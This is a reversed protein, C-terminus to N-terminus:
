VSVKVNLREGLRNFTEVWKKAGTDGQAAREVSSHYQEKGLAFYVNQAQWINYDLNLPVFVEFLSLLSNMKDNQEPSRELEEMLMNIKKSVEFAVTVTDFQLGWRKVESVVRGIEETDPPTAELADAFDSYNVFETINALVRPLPIGMQRIMGLIPDHNLKIQRLSDSIQELTSQLMENVLKRQEDRFLHWLSYNNSYHQEIQAIASSIDNRSFLERVEADIAEFDTGNDMDDVGCALNYDGFHIVTYHINKKERTIVSQIAAKGTAIINKGIEEKKQGSSEITYCYIQDSDSYSEFVSSMAYHAGVRYLDLTSPTIFNDYVYVGTGYEPINSPAHELLSRFTDTLNIGCTDHALQIARAAYAIIQTTEIGSVEDFFWGCSTYMLMAHRQMELLKIIQQQQEETPHEIKKQEGLVEEIAGERNVLIKWYEDRCRWPEDTYEKMAEEYVHELNDRLWDLAGRLPARWKQHWGQNMGSNCGCNSRWREIGHACSWSSNEHIEVECTPPFKELFEGYVCLQANEEKEIQYLCYALAMDGFRHHHGYSEGDTAIHVLQPTQNDVFASELRDAFYAGNDLLGGFAIDHSIPGDYFFLAISKGSPLACRYPMKPDLGKKATDIWEGKKIQRVRKAQNPALITFRIGYEALIDLTELDVATEACWMGEPVRGFRHEFDNIGWRVQTHKDRTNGLPLIMHSYNQAIAAGHGSFRELSIRDAELIAEYTEPENREMWSLLTPGFNFSIRSYNNVVDVIRHDPDLIRSFANRSYCEAAIRQNWDHFPYASDQQEVEELWPNERPPQYFHGHICVYKNM